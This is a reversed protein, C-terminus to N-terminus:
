RELRAIWLDFGGQIWDQQLVAVHDQGLSQFQRQRESPAELHGMLLSAPHIHAASGHVISPNWPSLSSCIMVVGFSASRVIRGIAPQPSPCAASTMNVPPASGTSGVGNRM